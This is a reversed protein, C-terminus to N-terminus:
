KFPPSSSLEWVKSKDESSCFGETKEEMQTTKHMMREWREEIIKKANLNNKERGGRRQTNGRKRGM